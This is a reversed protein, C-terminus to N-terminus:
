AVAMIRFVLEPSRVVAAIQESTPQQLCLTNLMPITYEDPSVASIPSAHLQHMAPVYAERFEFYKFHELSRIHATLEGYDEYASFPVVTGAPTVFANMVKNM